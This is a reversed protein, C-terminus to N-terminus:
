NRIIFEFDDDFIIEQNDDYSVKILIKYSRNPEFTNLDQKFFPSVTDCSMSTYSSFPVVSENTAMDIISYSGRGEPIYSGSVTQVSTTFSKEIYRKRAGFRFKVTETEKYAERVHLQYLYNKTEGSLDLPQLSGTNSGTAPLHDDWRLELKPSYITNTQRSFFKLDEAQGTSLTHTLNHTISDLSQSISESTTTSTHELIGVSASISSSISGSYHTVLMLSESIAFSSSHLTHFVEILSSSISASQITHFVDILSSSISASQITHFSQTLSQSISSTVTHDLSATMSHDIINIQGGMGAHNKCYYLLTDPTDHDPQFTFWMQNNEAVDSHSGSVEIHLPNSSDITYFKSSSISMQGYYPSGAGHTGDSTTSLRMPHNNNLTSYETQLFLYKNGRYINPTPQATATSYYNPPEGDMRDNGGLFRYVGGNVDIKFIHISGDGVYGKMSASISSSFTSVTDVLMLSESISSSIVGTTVISLSSSISSSIVGTTVISFSSSISSSISSSLNQVVALSTSISTEADRLIPTFAFNSQSISSTMFLQERNILDLSESVSGSVQTGLESSGSFRLLIGYNKNEGSFWKKAMSTIDMEIDPSSLSFSQTVEDESIYTGGANSWSVEAIDGGRNERNLWSCGVTTKPDDDEKGIGEDWSESLPYAAITYNNSLGSTGATEYLKLFLKYDCPVNSSTLYNKVDDTDFQILMRTPAHYERNRFVKKLELIEDQGVNKDQLTVGDSERSGSDIFTDKVAFFSRHM